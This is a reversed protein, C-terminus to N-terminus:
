MNYQINIFYRIIKGKGSSVCAVQGLVNALAEHIEVKTSSLATNLVYQCVDELKINADNLLLVSYRYESIIKHNILIYNLFM